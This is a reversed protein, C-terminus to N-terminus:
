GILPRYEGARVLSLGGHDTITLFRPSKAATMITCSSIKDSVSLFKKDSLMSNHCFLGIGSYFIGKLNESGQDQM